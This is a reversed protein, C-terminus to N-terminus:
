ASSLHQELAQMFGTVGQGQPMIQKDRDRAQDIASTAPHTAHWTDVILYDARAALSRLTATGVKDTNGEVARPSCLRSLRKELSAAARPLLSYVGVVSGDLRKWVTDVDSTQEHPQRVPLGAEGALTELESDQRSSLRQQFSRIKNIVESVTALRAEPVPSPAYLLVDVLSLGWDVAAPSSIRRWLLLAHNLTEQYRSETPGGELLRVILLLYADRVPASLSPQDVLLMLVVDFFEGAQITAAAKAAASCLLDLAAVIQEQNAGAWASLVNDAAARAEAYSLSGLGAWQHHQARLVQAADPWHENRGLRACWETWSHCSGGVLRDLEELDRLLRRDPRLRGEEVFGSVLSRVAPAQNTEEGELVAQVAMDAESPEPSELFARTVAGYQAQQFLEQITPLIVPRPRAATDGHTVLSRLWGREADTAAARLLRELRGRDGQVQAAVATVKRGNETIPVDVANLIVGYRSNLDARTYVDEASLESTSLPAVEKWWLMELLIENVARPRRARLMEQLYPLDQLESWRELRGLLEVKLFRLNEASLRGTLRLEDLAHEAVRGNGRLLALRFDRLLDVHSPRVSRRRVDTGTVTAVADELRELMVLASADTRQLHSLHNIGVARLIGDAGENGPSIPAPEITAVTPGLFAALVEQGCRQGERDESILYFGAPERDVPMVLWGSTGRSWTRVQGEFLVEIRDRLSNFRATDGLVRRLAEFASM